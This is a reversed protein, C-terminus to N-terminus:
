YLSVKLIILLYNLFLLYKKRNVQYLFFYNEKHNYKTKETVVKVDYMKKIANNIIMLEDFHGGSSSVLLIKKM